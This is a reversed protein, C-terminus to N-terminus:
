KWKEEMKIESIGNRYAEALALMFAGFSHHENHEARPITIYDEITGNGPCICGICSGETSFDRNIFRSVLTEIGNVFANKYRIEKLVGSRIGAGIGYLFLATGSSEEWANKYTIEQHWVGNYQYKLLTDTFEIYVDMMENRFPHGVPLASVIDAMGVYGWGNGRSWHDESLKEPANNIFGKSQHLLGIDKDIFLDYMKKCQEYGFRIYEENDMALGGFLMFPTICTIVDIWVRDHEKYIPSKLIGNKDAPSTMTKEAYEVIDRKFKERIIDSLHIKNIRDCYLLYAKTNGGCKYSEFNYTPQRSENEPYLQMFNIADNLLFKNEMEVGCHAAGYVALLGFYNEVMEDRKYSEYLNRAIDLTNM